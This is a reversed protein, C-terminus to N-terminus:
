LQTKGTFKFDKVKLAPMYNNGSFGGVAHRDKSILEVNSFIREISDTFRLNYVPAVVKGDEILYLGDRTLATLVGDRPSVVNMYHFRTVLLGRKTSQIMEEISSNGADMVMNLPMGGQGTGISHGTTKTGAKIAMSQDYAIEGIVGNEVLNLPQRAIGEYDFPLFMTKDNTYDDRITINEGLCKEGLKGSFCSMGMQHFRSAFGLYGTYSALGGVALPELIVDYSGPAVSIPNLAKQAKAYLTALEKVVDLEDANSVSKSMYSSAGSDHMVMGTMKVDSYNAYRRVKRNNGWVIATNVLSLSGAAIYEPGINAIGAKLLAARQEISFAANLTECYSTHEIEAENELEPLELEGAPLFELISEAKRLAELISAEDCVNTIVSATKKNSTVNIQIQTDQNYVNQHIQSNAYRTLGEEKFDMMVTTYYKAQAEILDIIQYATKKNLM